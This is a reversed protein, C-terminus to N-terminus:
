KARSASQYEEFAGSAPLPFGIDRDEWQELMLTDWNEDLLFKRQEQYFTGKWERWLNSQETTGPKM